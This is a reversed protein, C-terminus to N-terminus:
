DIDASVFDKFDIDSYNRLALFLQSIMTKWRRLFEDYAQFLFVVTILLLTKM